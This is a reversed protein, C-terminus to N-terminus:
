AMFDSHENINVSIQKLCPQCQVYSRPTLGNVVTITLIEFVFLFDLLESFIPSFNLKDQRKM